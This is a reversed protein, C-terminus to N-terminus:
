GRYFYHKGITATKRFARAWKPRVFNAHYFTAGGTIQPARDELVLKAIKAVMDKAKPERFVEAAGDCKYSFQCANRRSAGQSIVGCISNPFKKSIIQNINNEKLYNILTKFNFSPIKSLVLLDVNYSSFELCNYVIRPILQM